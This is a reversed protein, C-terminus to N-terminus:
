TLWIKEQRKQVNNGTDWANGPSSDPTLPALFLSTQKKFGLGMQHKELLHTTLIPVGPLSAPSRERM